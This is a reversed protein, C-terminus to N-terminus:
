SAELDVLSNEFVALSDDFLDVIDDIDQRTVTLPPAILVHDGLLGNLCRRPYILLGRQKAIRTLRDFANFHAPFPEKSNRDQVLEM